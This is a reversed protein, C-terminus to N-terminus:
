LEEFIKELETRQTLNKYLNFFEEFQFKSLPIADGKGSPLGSVDLAKEM